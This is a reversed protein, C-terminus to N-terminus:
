DSAASEPARRLGGPDGPLEEPTMGTAQQYAELLVRQGAEPMTGDAGGDVLGKSDMRRIHIANGNRWYILRGGM